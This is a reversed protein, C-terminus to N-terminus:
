GSALPGGHDEPDGLGDEDGRQHLRQGRISRDAARLQIRDAQGGAAASRDAPRQAVDRDASALEEVRRRAPARSRNIPRWTSASSASRTTFRSSRWWCRFQRATRSQRHHRPRSLRRDRARQGGAGGASHRGPLSVALHQRDGICGAAAAKPAYEASIEGGASFLGIDARSFDFSALDEVPLQKGAFEVSKGLSRNSALAYLESVPFKREELVSIMTDGVLGTAGVVAM